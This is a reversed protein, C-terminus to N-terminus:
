YSSLLFPSFITHSLCLLLGMDSFPLFNVPDPVSCVCLNKDGPRVLKSELTSLPLTTRTLLDLDLFLDRSETARTPELPPLQLFLFRTLLIKRIPSQNHACCCEISMDISIICRFCLFPASDSEASIYFPAPWSGVEQM